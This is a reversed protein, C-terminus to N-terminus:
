RRGRHLIAVGSYYIALAIVTIVAWIGILYPVHNGGNLILLVLVIAAWFGFAVM